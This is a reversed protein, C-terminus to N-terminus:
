LVCRVTQQTYAYIVCTPICHTHHAYFLPTARPTRAYWHEIQVYSYIWITNGAVFLIFIVNWQKATGYIIIYLVIVRTSYYARVAARLLTYTCLRYDIIRTNNYAGPHFTGYSRNNCGHSRFIWYHTASIFPKNVKRTCGASGGGCDSEAHQLHRTHRRRYNCSSRRVPWCSPEASFRAADRPVRTYRGFSIYECFFVPIM